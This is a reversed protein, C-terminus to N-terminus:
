SGYPYDDTIIGLIIIIFPLLLSFLGLAIEWWKM